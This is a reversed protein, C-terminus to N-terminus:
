PNFLSRQVRSEGKGMICVAEKETMKFHKPFFEYPDEDANPIERLPSVTQPHECDRRGWQIKM